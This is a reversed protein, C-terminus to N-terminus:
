AIKKLLINIQEAIHHLGIETAPSINDAAKEAEYQYAITLYNYMFYRILRDTHYQNQNIIDFLALLQDFFALDIKANRHIYDPKYLLTVQLGYRYMLSSFEPKNLAKSVSLIQQTIPTLFLEDASNYAALKLAALYSDEIVADTLACDTGCVHTILNTIERVNDYAMTMTASAGEPSDERTYFACNRHCPVAKLYAIESEWPVWPDFVLVTFLPEAPCSKVTKTTHDISDFDIVDYPQLNEKDYWNKDFQHWWTGEPKSSLPAKSLWSPAPLSSAEVLPMLHAAIVIFFLFPVEKRHALQKM